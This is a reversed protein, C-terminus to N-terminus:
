PDPKRRLFMRSMIYRGMWKLMSEDVVVLWSPTYHRSAHANWADWFRRLEWHPDGQLTHLIGRPGKCAGPQEPRDERAGREATYKPMSIALFELIRDFDRRYLFKNLNFQGALPDKKVDIV